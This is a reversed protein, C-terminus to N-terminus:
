AAEAESLLGHSVLCAAWGAPGDFLHAQWGRARAQAINDARDDIFLLAGPAVGSTEEVIEYIRPDPKTM